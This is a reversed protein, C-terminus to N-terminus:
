KKLSVNLASLIARVDARLGELETKLAAHLLDCEGRGRYRADLEAVEHHIDKRTHHVQMSTAIGAGSVALGVLVVVVPWSFTTTQTISVEERPAANQGQCISGVLAIVILSGGTTILVVGCVSQIRSKM